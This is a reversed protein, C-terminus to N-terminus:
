RKAVDESLVAKVDIIPTGDIAELHKVRVRLGDVEAV